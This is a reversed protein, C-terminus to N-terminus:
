GGGMRVTIQHTRGDDELTLSGESVPQGDHLMEAVRAGDGEVTVVYSAEGCRYTLRYSRWGPRIVPNLHLRDDIRELGLLSEVALRYFWGASGTYWTWGGRGTAPAVGYVDAAIVYPEVRYRAIAGESDGHRVPNLLDFIEWARKRDGIAAFAMATWVAAHTYQGGNERVGPAYGKIYGPELDSQDFPPDFLAVLGEQRRVLRSDVSDMAKLCRARDGAGSLVAWSQPLADISCEANTRSGLPRGDDFWARLYWDGDWAQDELAKRLQRMEAQCLSATGTDQRATALPEFRRLVDHLFFGLWVSEGKGGIGVLNMGDNWDGCGMLPLGHAGMRMARHLARVCHVYLPASEGSPQPLDYYAEEDHGVPRGELFPSVEDLVSRDGTVEVYRAVALPLWLLDDSFRTRVGRGSPPHWWHQVDGERFQHRSAELLHRRAVGPEAHVLAMVDQLQDRFGYAGGSQYYGTRAWVRASLIQYIMWNNVLVDFAPDPTAVQVAGTTRKWREWVEELAGRAGGPGRFRRLLTTMDDADRAAGLLIVLEHQEGPVLEISSMFSFCPDLGGGSRGSLALHGLAIPNALDRGPGIFESRDGSYSRHQAQVDLFVSREPMDPHFSNRATLAGTRPDIETAVHLHSKGRQEGLVLEFCGLVSVRRVRRSNNRLRLVQFRVPADIAVYVTLETALEGAEHEFISYGLGHRVEYTGQGRRPAPTPSWSEGSDDDRVYLAQGSRDGVPENYWPTIRFEHSNELWTYGGGSESV